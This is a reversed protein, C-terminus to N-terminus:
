DFGAADGDEDPLEDMGVWKWLRGFLHLGRRLGEPTMEMGLTRLYEIADPIEKELLFPGMQAVLLVRGVPYVRGCFAMKESDLDRLNPDHVVCEGGLLLDRLTATDDEGFRVVEYLSPVSRLRSELVARVGPALDERLLREALTAEGKGPGYATWFWEEFADRAGPQGTPRLLRRGTAVDGFYLAVARDSPRSIREAAVRRLAAECDRWAALDDDAPLDLIAGGVRSSKETARDAMAKMEIMMPHEPEHRIRVQAVSLMRELVGCLTEDNSVIERPLGKRETQNRGWFVDNVLTAGGTVGRRMVDTRLSMVPEEVMMITMRYPEDLHAFKLRREFCGVGWTEDLRPLELTSDLVSRVADLGGGFASVPRREVAVEPDLADGSLALTLMDPSELIFGPKLDGAADARSIGNFVFLMREMEERSLGRAKANPENVCFAPARTERRCGMGAKDLLARERPEMNAFTDMSAEMYVGEGGDIDEYILHGCMRRYANPGAVFALWRDDGDVERRFSLIM